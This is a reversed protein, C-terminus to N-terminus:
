SIVPGIYIDSIMSPVSVNSGYRLFNLELSTVTFTDTYNQTYMSTGNRYVTLTNGVRTIRFYTTGQLGTGSAYNQAVVTTGNIGFGFRMQIKNSWEDNYAIQMLITNGNKILLQHGGMWAATQDYCTSSWHIEFDGTTSYNYEITRSSCKYTASLNSPCTDYEGTSTIGPVGGGDVAALKEIIDNENAKAYLEDIASKTNTSTMGSTQNNYLVNEGAFYIPDAYYITILSIVMGLVLGIILLKYVKLLRLIKKM